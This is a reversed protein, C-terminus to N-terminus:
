GSCLQVLSYLVLYYSLLLIHLECTNVDGVTAQKYLGYVILLDDNSPKSKFNNVKEM